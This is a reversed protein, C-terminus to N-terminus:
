GAGCPTTVEGALPGARPDGDRVQYGVGRVTHVYRPVRPDPEIKRRLQSIHVDLTETSGFWHADWVARMLDERRVVAPSREALHALVDFERATLEVTREGVVVTRRDLDVVLDGVALRRPGEQDTWGRRRLISRIRAALEHSSFPKPLYDDAGSELGRVRDPVEGLATLMVIPVDSSRRIIQCAEVGSMGPLAVDLIVAVPDMTPLRQLADEATVFREVVFGERGLASALPRVIADEDEVLVLLKSPM